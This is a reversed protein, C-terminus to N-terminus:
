VHRRRGDPGAPLLAWAIQYALSRDSLFLEHSPSARRGLRALRDLLEPRSHHALLTRVIMARATQYSIPYRDDM